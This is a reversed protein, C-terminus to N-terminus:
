AVTCPGQVEAAGTGASTGASAHGSTSGSAFSASSQAREAGGMILRLKRTAVPSALQHARGSSCPSSPPQTQTALPAAPPSAAPPPQPSDQAAFADQEGRAPEPLFPLLQTMERRRGRQKQKRRAERRAEADAAAEEERVLRAERWQAARLSSNAPDADRAEPLVTTAGPMADRLLTAVAGREDSGLEAFPLCAGRALAYAACRQADDLQAWDPPTHEVLARAVAVDLAASARTAAALAPTAPPAHIVLRSAPADAWARTVGAVGSAGSGAEAESPAPVEGLMDDVMTALSDVRRLLAHVASEPRLTALANRHTYAGCSRVARVLAAVLLREIRSAAAADGVDPPAGPLAARELAAAGGVLETLAALAGEATAAM